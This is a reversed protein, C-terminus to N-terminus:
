SWRTIETEAWHRAWRRKISEVYRQVGRPRLLIVSPVLGARGLKQITTAHDYVLEQFSLLGLETDLIAYRALPKGDRSQGVAGPNIVYSIDSRLSIETSGRMLLFGTEKSYVAAHHTHGCVLLRADPSRNKLQAIANDAQVPDSIYNDADLLDGHCVAIHPAAELWQPLAGLFAVAHPSLVTRTWLIAKIGAYVCRSFDRRGLAMEEHNGVVCPINLARLRVICAEPDPGYGVIDGACIIKAEPSNAEIDDIVAELAELNGHIDSILALKV